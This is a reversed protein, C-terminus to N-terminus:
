PAHQRIIFYRTHLLLEGTSTRYFDRNEILERREQAILLNRKLKIVDEKVGRGRPM